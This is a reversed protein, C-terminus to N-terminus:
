ILMIEIRERNQCVGICLSLAFNENVRIGFSHKEYKQKM